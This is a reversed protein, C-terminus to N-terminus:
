FMVKEDEWREKLDKIIEGGYANECIEIFDEVTYLENLDLNKNKVFSERGMLCSGTLYHHWEFFQTGKYAKGKEFTDLFMDIAEDTDMNSFIKDQLATRAEELTKGHAFYGNGKVIYCPDLSLDDNLIFGKALNGKIRTVITPTKDIQYVDKGNFSKIGSGSGDGSGDGYGSGYGDGIELFKEIKDKLSEMGAPKRPQRNRSRHAAHSAARQQHGHQQCRPRDQQGHRRRQRNAVPLVSGDLAM